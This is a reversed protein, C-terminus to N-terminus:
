RSSASVVTARASAITVMVAVLAALLLGILLVAWRSPSAALVLGATVIFAAELARGKELPRIQLAWVSLIFLAVPVAVSAGAVWTPIEAHGTILDVFVALGAGVATTVSFIILHGYGWLFAVRNSLLFRHAPPEFYISWMSFLILLGGVIVSFLPLTLEGEVLASQIAVTSALVSEGLVILTLLGYREAIHHPHWPTPHAREAWIPVLMEAPMLLLWGIMWGDPPLALLAIWGAQCLTVGVAFRLATVRLADNWKAARLWLSVLGVRMVAYGMTAVTFDREDFARPVGAALVLAGTIQIFVGLRYPVDGSDFASAFWTFSMWAWWIAFFVLVYAVLSEIAHGEAIGHHLRSAAQAIAVVFCLDFLLELPTAARHSEHPDRPAMPRIWSRRAPANEVMTIESM